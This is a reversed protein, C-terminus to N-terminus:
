IALSLNRVRVSKSSVSPILHTGKKREKSTASLRLSTWAHARPIFRKAVATNCAVASAPGATRKKKTQKRLCLCILFTVHLFMGGWNSLLRNM